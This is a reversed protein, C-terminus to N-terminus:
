LNSVSTTNFLKGYIVGDEDDEPITDIFIHLNPNDKLKLADVLFKCRETNPVEYLYIYVPENTNEYQSFIVSLTNEDPQRIFIKKGKKTKKVLTSIPTFLFTNNTNSFIYKRYKKDVLDVLEPLNLYTFLDILIKHMSPYLEESCNNEFVRINKVIELVKENKTKLAYLIVFLSFDNLTDDDFLSLFDNYFNIFKPSDSYFLFRGIFMFIDKKDEEKINKDYFIKRCEGIIIDDSYNRLILMIDLEENYFKKINPINSLLRYLQFM